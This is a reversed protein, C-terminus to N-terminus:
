TRPRISCNRRFAMAKYRYRIEKGREHFDKLKAISEYNPNDSPEFLQYKQNWVSRTLTDDFDFTIVSM